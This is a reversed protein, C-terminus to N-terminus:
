EDLYELTMLALKLGFMQGEYYLMNAFDGTDYGDQFKNSMTQKHNRQIPKKPGKLRLQLSTSFIFKHGMEVTPM